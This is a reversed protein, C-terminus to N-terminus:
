EAEFEGIYAWEPLNSLCGIVQDQNGKWIAGYDTAKIFYLGAGRASEALRGLVAEESDGCEDIAAQYDEDSNYDNPYSIKITGTTKM